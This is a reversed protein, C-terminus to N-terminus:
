LPLDPSVRPARHRSPPAATSSRLLLRVPPEVDDPDAEGPSEIARVLRRLGREGLTDFEQAVTTLPPNLYAASPFDDFGVVSVDGPVTRGAEVFARMLGVAMEDNAVFVATVGEDRALAQGALYGSAPSWDGTLFPKEEAGATQLARRWGEVRDRASWWSQPGAVHHVTVHGLDLLHQTAVNAAEDAGLGSSVVAPASLERFRGWTLVPVDVTISLPGEDVPEALVLGDVGQELLADIASSLQRWDGQPVNVFSLAYGATRAAAEIGILLSSPGYLASALSVVGIRHNKGSLLARAVSNRRYGLQSAAELVRARVEETVHPENNIVRSVTKQSVGALRAVDTGGPRRVPGAAPM